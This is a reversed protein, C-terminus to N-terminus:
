NLQEAVRPIKQVYNRTEIYGTNPTCSTNSTGYCGPSDWECEWRRQGKCDSSPANAGEGGNYAAYVLTEDGDYKRYLDAYIVAGLQMNYEDDDRLKDRLEASTLDNLSPDYSKATDPTIQMCGLAGVPSVKNRCAGSEVRMLAQLNRTQEADLGAASAAAALVDDPAGLAALASIDAPSLVGQAPAYATGRSADPVPHYVWNVRVQETCQVTNWTGFPVTGGPDSVLFRMGYDILLWAALVIVFGVFANTIMSKAKEKAATNGTSTVLNFGAVMVMLAFVVSLIGILWDLLGNFLEVVHCAQCVPEDEGGCPVLGAAFSVMPIVLLIAALILGVKRKM